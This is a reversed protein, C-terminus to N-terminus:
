LKQIPLAPITRYGLYITDRTGEPQQWVCVRWLFEQENLCHLMYSDHDSYGGEMQVTANLGEAKINVDDKRVFQGDRYPINFIEGTQEHKNNLFRVLFVGSGGGPALTLTAQPYYATRLEMRANGKSSKWEGQVDALRIGAGNVPFGTSSERHEALPLDRYTYLVVALAVLLVGGFAALFFLNWWRIKKLWQPAKSVKQEQM